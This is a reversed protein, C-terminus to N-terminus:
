KVLILPKIYWNIWRRLRRIMIWGLLKGWIKPTACGKGRDQWWRKREFIDCAKIVLCAKFIWWSIGHKWPLPWLNGSQWTVFDFKLEIHDLLRSIQGCIRRQCIWVQDEGEREYWISFPQQKRTVQRAPMPEWCSLKTETQWRGHLCRNAFTIAEKKTERRAPLPKWLAFRFRKRLTMSWHHPETCQTRRRRERFIEDLLQCCSSCNACGSWRRKCGLGNSETPRAYEFLPLKRGGKLSVPDDGSGGWKESRCECDTKQHYKLSSGLCSFWSKTKVPMVCDTTSPSTVWPRSQM